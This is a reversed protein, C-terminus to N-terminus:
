TALTGPPLLLGATDVVLWSEALQGRNIRDVGIGALAVTRRTPAIGRFPGVHTGRLVFRSVVRDGEAILDELILELDPFGARWEAVDIRVGERGYLDGDPVHRVHDAAVLEALAKKNARNIVEDVFRGVLAKNRSSM